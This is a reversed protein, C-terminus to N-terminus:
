KGKKLTMSKKALPATKGVMGGKVPRITAVNPKAAANNVGVRVGKTSPKVRAYGPATSKPTKPNGAM